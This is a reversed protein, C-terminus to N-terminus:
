LVESSPDEGMPRRRALMLLVLGAAAAAALHKLTHRSVFGTSRLITQDALEFAKALAYFGGVGWMM